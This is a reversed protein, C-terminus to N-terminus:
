SSVTPKEYEVATLYLSVLFLKEKLALARGKKGSGFIFELDLDKPQPLFICELIFLISQIYRPISHIYHLTTILKKLKIFIWM